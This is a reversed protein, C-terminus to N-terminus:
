TFESFPPSSFTISILFSIRLLISFAGYQNLLNNKYIKEIAFFRDPRERTNLLTAGLSVGLFRCYTTLSVGSLYGSVCGKLSISLIYVSLM